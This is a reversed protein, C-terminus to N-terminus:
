TSDASSFQSKIECYEILFTSHFPQNFALSLLMISRHLLKASLRLITNLDSIILEFGIVCFVM